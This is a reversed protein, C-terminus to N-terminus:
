AGERQVREIIDKGIKPEYEAYVPQVASKASEVDENTWEYLELRGSAKIADFADNNEKQALDWVYDTAEKMADEFVKRTEPKLKDWFEKNVVVAYALYEMTATVTGFRQVEHFKQTYTNSWTNLQADVVGQQLAGFVESFAMVQASGGLAKIISEEVKGQARFKLGRFDEPRKLQRKNNTAYRFGNDWIALGHMGAKNLRMYLEKGAEGEAVRKVGDRSGFIFPLDFVQWEPVTVSFKATSPALFEVQGKQIADFEEADKYLSSNAYVQVEINGGSKEKVLEAFRTAGKGKPTNEAVVHSFKVITKDGPATTPQGASPGAAPTCAALVMGIAALGALFRLLLARM